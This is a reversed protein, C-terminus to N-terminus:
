IWTTRSWVPSRLEVLVDNDSVSLEAALLGWRSSREAPRGRGQDEENKAFPHFRTLAQDARDWLERGGESFNYWARGIGDIIHELTSM